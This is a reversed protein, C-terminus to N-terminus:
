RYELVLAVVVLLRAAVALFRAEVVVSASLGQAEADVAAAAQIHEMEM